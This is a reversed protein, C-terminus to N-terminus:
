ILSDNSQTPKNEQEAMDEPSTQDAATAQEEQVAAFVEVQGYTGSFISSFYSTLYVM